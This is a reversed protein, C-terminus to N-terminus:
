EIDTLESLKIQLAKALESLYFVTANFQGKEVKYISQRDKGTLRALDSQSLGKKERMVSIREGIKKLLTAKDMNSVTLAGLLPCGVM